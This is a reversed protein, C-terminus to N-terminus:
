KVAKRRYIAYVVLTAAPIMVVVLGLAVVIAAPELSILSDLRDMIWEFLDPDGPEGHHLGMSLPNM